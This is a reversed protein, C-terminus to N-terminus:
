CVYWNNRAAQVQGRLPRHTNPGAGRWYEHMVALSSMGQSAAIFVYRSRRVIEIFMAKKELSSVGSSKVLFSTIGGVSAM